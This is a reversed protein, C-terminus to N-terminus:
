GGVAARKRLNLTQHNDTITMPGILVAQVTVGPLQISGQICSVVRQVIPQVVSAPSMSRQRHGRESAGRRVGRRAVM